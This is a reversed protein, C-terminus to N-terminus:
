IKMVKMCHATLDTFDYRKLARTGGALQLNNSLASNIKLGEEDNGERGGSDEGVAGRGVVGRGGGVLRVRGWGRGHVVDRLAVAGNVKLLGGGLQAHGGQLGHAGLLLHSELGGYLLLPTEGDGHDRARSLYTIFM